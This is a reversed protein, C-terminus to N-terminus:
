SRATQLAFPQRIQLAFSPNDPMFDNLQGVVFLSDQLLYARCTAMM